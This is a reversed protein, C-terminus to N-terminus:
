VASWRRGGTSRRSDPTAPHFTNSLRLYAERLWEVDIHHALTSLEADPIQEALKAIRELKLSVTESSSRETM